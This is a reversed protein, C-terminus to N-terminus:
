RADGEFITTEYGLLSGEDILQRILGNIGWGELADRFLLYKTIQNRNYKPLALAPLLARMTFEQMCKYPVEAVPDFLCANLVRDAFSCAAPTRQALRSMATDYKGPNHGGDLLQM